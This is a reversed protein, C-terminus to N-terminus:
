LFDSFIKKNKREINTTMTIINDPSLLEKNKIISKKEIQAIKNFRLNFNLIANIKEASIIEIKIKCM